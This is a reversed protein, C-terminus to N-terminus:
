LTRAQNMLESLHKLLGKKQDARLVGFRIPVDFGGADSEKGGCTTGILHLEPAQEREPLFIQIPTNETLKQKTCLLAGGLSLNKLIGKREAGHVIYKLEYNGPFRVHVRRQEPIASSLGLEELVDGVWTGNAKNAFKLGVQYQGLVPRSWMVVADLGKGNHQDLGKPPMLQVKMGKRWRRETSLRAGCASLDRLSCSRAGRKTDCSLSIECRARPVQRREDINPGVVFDRVNYLIEWFM